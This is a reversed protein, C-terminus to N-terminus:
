IKCRGLVLCYRDSVRRYPGRCVEGDKTYIRDLERLIDEKEAISLSFIETVTM